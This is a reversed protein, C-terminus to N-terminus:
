HHTLLLATLLQASALLVAMADEPNKEKLTEYDARSFFTCKMVTRARVTAVRKEGSFLGMEGVVFPAKMLSLGGVKGGFQALVEAEGEHVFYLGDPEDGQSFLTTGAAIDKTASSVDQM